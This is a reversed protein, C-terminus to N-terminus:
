AVSSPAAAKKAAQARADANTRSAQAAREDLRRVLRPYHALLTLGRAAAYGLMAAWLGANGHSASWWNGLVLFAVLSLISANRLERAATAGIFIGDLQWAAIALVVYGAAFPLHAAAVSQVEATHTLWAIA